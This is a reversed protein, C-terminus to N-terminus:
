SLLTNIKETRQRLFAQTFLNDKLMKAEQPQIKPLDQWRELILDYLTAGKDAEQQLQQTYELLDEFHVKPHFGRSGGDYVICRELAKIPHNLLEQEFEPALLSNLPMLDTGPIKIRVPTKDTPCHFQGEIYIIFATEFKNQNQIMIEEAEKGGLTFLFIHKMTKPIKELACKLTSGTAVIDGIFVISDNELNLKTYNDDKIKWQNNELTRESSMFSARANPKDIKGLAELIQFNLGGRLFHLVNLNEDKVNKFYNNLEPHSLAKKIASGLADRYPKGVLLPNTTLERTEPTSLIYSKLPNNDSISADYLSFENSKIITKLEKKDM